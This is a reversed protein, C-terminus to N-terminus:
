RKLRVGHQKAFRRLLDLNARSHRALACLIEEATESSQLYTANQIWEALLRNQNESESMSTFAYAFVQIAHYLTKVENRDLYAGIQVLYDWDFIDVADIKEEAM